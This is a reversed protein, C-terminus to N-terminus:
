RVVVAQNSVGPIVNMNGMLQGASWYIKAGTTPDILHFGTPNDPSGTVGYVVRAHASLWAAVVGNSTNWPDYKAPTSHGWVIVPNGAHVQSSIFGASVNNYNSADRGFSRAAAAIPGSHVGYGTSNQYGRVDGVFMVNPDDWTNTARDRPRPAYGLRGLVDWDGVNVGRYALVMRLATVQCANGLAQRLAPVNLKIVQVATTFSGGLPRNSPLGWAPVVGPAVSYNYGTQYGMGTPTYIMTNGSWSFRGALSPSLSFRSEASAHDVAQDFGIKIATNPAVNGGGPSASAGVVGNTAFQYPIDAEIVGGAKSKLGAKIKYSYTTGPKIGEPKFKYTRDDTWSGNGAVDFQFAAPNTEMPQGFVIDATQGPTFYGGTRASTVAPQAVTIVPISLLQAKAPDQVNKDILVFTYATGQKLPEIPEWSFVQDDHSVLKLPAAPQLTAELQRLERNPASLRIDFRPKVSVDAAGSAPTYSAVAPPVQATFQQEIDPISAGTVVRSLGAVRVKYAQGAQFRESPRFSIASLGFLNTQKQWSGEVKPEISAEFEGSIEKSFDISLPGKVPVSHQDALVVQVTGQTRAALTLGIPVIIVAALGGFVVGKPLEALKFYKIFRQATATIVGIM